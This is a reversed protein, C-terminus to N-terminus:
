LARNVESSAGSVGMQAIAGSVVAGIKGRVSRSAFSSCHSDVGGATDGDAKCKLIQATLDKSLM